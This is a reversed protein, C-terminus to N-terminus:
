RSQSKLIAKGIDAPSLGSKHGIESWSMKENRYMDVIKQLPINTQTHLAYILNIERNDFQQSRLRSIQQTAAHYHKGLLEDSILDVIKQDPAGAAIKELVPTNQRATMLRTSGMIKQWSGGNNRVALLIDRSVQTNRAIYLAILLDDPDIGGKMKMMIIQRKSVGLTAAVLSNFGTTLLYSDAAKKHAPDYSRERFCHCRDTPGATASPTPFCLCALTLFLIVKM